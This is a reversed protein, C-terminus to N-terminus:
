PEDLPWSAVVSYISGSEGRQSQMLVFRDCHMRLPPSLDRPWEAVAARPASIKRALTLHARFPKLDPTFGSATIAQGIRQALDAAASSQATGPATACLIKPKEWYELADFCFEARRGRVQAAVECLAALKEPPVAGVFCLTAHLNSAPVVQAQMLEVLPAVRAALEAGQAPSPLLAFFLRLM